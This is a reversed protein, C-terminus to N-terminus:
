RESWGMPEPGVLRKAAAAMTCSRDGDTLNTGGTPAVTEGLVFIKNPLGINQLVTSVSAIAIIEQMVIPKAIWRREARRPRVDGDESVGSSRFTEWGALDVAFTKAEEWCGTTVRFERWDDTPPSPSLTAFSM